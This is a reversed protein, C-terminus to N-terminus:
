HIIASLGRGFASDGLAVQLVRLLALIILTSAMAAVLTVTTM